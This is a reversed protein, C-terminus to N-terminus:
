QCGGSHPRAVRRGRVISSSPPLRPAAMAVYRM